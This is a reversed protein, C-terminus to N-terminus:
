SRAHQFPIGGWPSLPWVYGPADAVEDSSVPTVPAPREIRFLDQLRSM